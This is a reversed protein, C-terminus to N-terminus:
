LSIPNTRKDIYQGNIFEGDTLKTIEQPTAKYIRWMGEGIVNSINKIRFKEKKARQNFLEIGQEIDSVESLVTVDAKIYVADGEGEPPRSDFIVIAVRPNEELLKSHLSDKNSVWYINYDTDYAFFVPSIWPSGDLSTTALVAHINDAIIERATEVDNM